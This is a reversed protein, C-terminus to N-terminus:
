RSGDACAARPAESGGAAPRLRPRTTLASGLRVLLRGKRNGRRASVEPEANVDFQARVQRQAQDIAVWEGLM